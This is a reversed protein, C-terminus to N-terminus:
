SLKKLLAQQGERVVIELQVGNISFKEPYSANTMEGISYSSNPNSLWDNLATRKLLYNREAYNKDMHLMLALFYGKLSGSIISLNNYSINNKHLYTEANRTFIVDDNTISPHYVIPYTLLSNISFLGILSVIVVAAFKQYYVPQIHRITFIIPFIALCSVVLVLIYFIKNAFYLAILGFQNLFIFAIYTMIIVFLYVSFASKLNESPKKLFLIFGSVVLIIFLINFNFISFEVTSGEHQLISIGISLRQISFILFLFFVFIGTLLIKKDSFVSMRDRNLIANILFAFLPIVIFLTYTYIIGINILMFIMMWSRTGSESKMLALLSLLVLLEGFIMSYYFNSCYQDLFYVPMTFVMFVGVLSTVDALGTEIKCKRLLERSILFVGSALLGSMIAVLLGMTNMVPLSFIRSIFSTFLSAGFPYQVMEGIGYNIPPFDENNSFYDILIYHHPYDVSAYIPLLSPSIIWSIIFSIMFVLIAFFLTGYNRDIRIKKYSFYGIILLVPLLFLILNIVSLRVNAADLLYGVFCFLSYLVGFFILAFEMISSFIFNHSDQPALASNKSFDQFTLNEGETGKKRIKRDKKM